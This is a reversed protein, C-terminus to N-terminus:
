CRKEPLTVMQQSTLPCTIFYGSTEAHASRATIESVKFPPVLKLLSEVLPAPWKRMFRFKRFVDDLEIPHIIFAFDGM